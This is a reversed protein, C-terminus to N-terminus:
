FRKYNPHCAGNTVFMNLRTRFHYIVRFLSLITIKRSLDIRNMNYSLVRILWSGTNMRIQFQHLIQFKKVWGKKLKSQEFFIFNSFFSIKLFFKNLFNSFSEKHPRCFTALSTRSTHWPQIRSIFKTRKTIETIKGYNVWRVFKECDAWDLPYRETAQMFDLVTGFHSLQHVLFKHM